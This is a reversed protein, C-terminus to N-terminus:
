PQLLFCEITNPSVVRARPEPELDNRLLLRLAGEHEALAVAEAGAETLALTVAAPVPECETFADDDDDEVAWGEAEPCPSGPTVALVEVNSSVIRSRPRGRVRTGDDLVVDVQMGPEVWELLADDLEVTLGRMGRPVVSFGLDSRTLRETRVLENALIRDHPVTGVVREPSRVATGPILAPDLWVVALDGAEIPVGPYLDRVAIVVPSPAEAPPAAPRSVVLSAFVAASARLPAM